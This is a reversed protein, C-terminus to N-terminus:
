ANDNHGLLLALVYLDQGALATGQELPRPQGGPLELSRSNGNGQNGVGHRPVKHPPPLDVANDGPGVANGGVAIGGVFDASVGQRHQCLFVTNREIDGGGGGGDVGRELVAVLNEDLLATGVLYGMDLAYGDGRFANAGGIGGKVNGGVEVDGGDDGILTDNFLRVGLSYLPNKLGGL